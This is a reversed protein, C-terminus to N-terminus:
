MILDVVMCQGTYKPQFVCGYHNKQNPKQVSTSVALQTIHMALTCHVTYKYSLLYSFLSDVQRPMIFIDWKYCFKLEPLSVM